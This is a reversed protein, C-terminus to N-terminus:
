ISVYKYMYTSNDRYKQKMIISSSYVHVTHLNIKAWTIKVWDCKCFLNRETKINGRFVQTGLSTYEYAATNMKFEGKTMLSFHPSFLVPAIFYSYVTFVLHYSIM